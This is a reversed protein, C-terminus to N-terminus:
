RSQGDFKHFRVIISYNRGRTFRLSISGRIEGYQRFFRIRSFEDEMDGCHRHNRVSRLREKHFDRRVALDTSGGIRQDRQIGRVNACKGDLVVYCM